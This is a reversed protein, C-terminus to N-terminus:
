ILKRKKGKVIYQKCKNTRISFCCFLYAGILIENNHRMLEELFSVHMLFFVTAIKKGLDGKKAMEVKDDDDDDDNTIM